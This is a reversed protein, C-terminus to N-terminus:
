APGIDKRMFVGPVWWKKGVLDDSEWMREVCRYVVYGRREYWEQTSVKPMKMGHAVHRAEKEPDNKSATSLALRRALLPESIATREVIDM